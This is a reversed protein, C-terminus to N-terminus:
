TECVSVCRVRRLMKNNVASVSSRIVNKIVVLM